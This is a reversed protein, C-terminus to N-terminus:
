DRRKTTKRSHIYYDTSTEMVEQLFDEESTTSNFGLKVTRSGFSDSKLQSFSKNPHKTMRIEKEKKKAEETQYCKSTESTSLITL